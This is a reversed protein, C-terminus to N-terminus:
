DEPAVLERPELGGRLHDLKRRSEAGRLYLPLIRPPRLLGRLRLEHLLPLHGPAVKGVYLSELEGGKRLYELVFLLGRLYIADKVLGGGRFVRLTIGFAEETAFGHSMTLVRFVDVFSAGEIAARAAVVRGALLRLRDMTLGGALHEALVGLGEQLEDYGVLGLGLLRFPQLRGNVYTVIHTGVEHALIADVRNAAIAADDAILLNGKSVTLGVVDDRVEVRCRVEPVDALYLAIQERAFRALHYAGLRPPGSGKRPPLDRLLERAAALLSDEVEGWLAISGYLFRRTGVDRLLTLKRALEDRKELFIEEMVPDDVRDIPLEFLSRKVLDPDIPCPRYIFRPARECGREFFRARAVRSNVPTVQLLFDFSRDLRALARDMESVLDSICRPGLSLFHAVPQSTHARLFEALGRRLAHAFSRHLDRLVLPYVGFSSRFVAPLELGVIACGLRRAAAADLIPPLGPPGPESRRHRKVTVPRGGITLSGMAETLHHITSRPARGREEVIRVIADDGARAPPGSWLELLMFGNFQPSIADVIETVLASLEPQLSVEGTARLYSAESSVLRETGPDERDTPRRYVCLFPLPRDIHLEALGPLDRHVRHGDALAMPLPPSWELTPEAEITV